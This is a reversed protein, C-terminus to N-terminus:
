GMIVMRVGKQADTHLQLFSKYQKDFGLGLNYANLVREQWKEIIQCVDDMADRATEGLRQNVSDKNIILTL